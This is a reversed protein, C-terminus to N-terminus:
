ERLHKLGREFAKKGKSTIKYPKYRGLNRREVYGVARLVNLLVLLGTSSIKANFRSLIEHRIQAREYEINDYLVALIYMIKFGKELGWEVIPPIIDRL